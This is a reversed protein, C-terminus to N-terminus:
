RVGLGGKAMLGGDVNVFEGTLFSAEDTALFSIVLDGRRTQNAYGRAEANRLHELGREACADELAAVDRIKTQITVFHSISINITLTRQSSPKRSASFRKNKDRHRTIKSM